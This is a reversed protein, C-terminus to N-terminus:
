RTWYLSLTQTSGKTRPPGQRVVVRGEAAMREVAARVKLECMPLMVRRIDKLLMPGNADDLAAFVAEVDSFSLPMGRSRKIKPREPKALLWPITEHETPDYKGRVPSAPARYPATSISMELTEALTNRM